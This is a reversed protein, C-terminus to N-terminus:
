PHHQLGNKARHPDRKFHNAPSTLLQRYTAMGGAIATDLVLEV